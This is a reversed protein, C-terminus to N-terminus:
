EAHQSIINSPSFGMKKRNHPVVSTTGQFLANSQRCRTGWIEGPKPSIHPNVSTFGSGTPLAFVELPSKNIGM